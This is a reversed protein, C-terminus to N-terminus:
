MIVILVHLATQKQGLVHIALVKANKVYEMKYYMSTIKNNALVSANQKILHYFIILMVIVAYNEM